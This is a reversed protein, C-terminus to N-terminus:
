SEMYFIKDKTINYKNLLDQIQNNHKQCHFTVYNAEEEFCIDEDEFETEDFYKNLEKLQKKTLYSKHVVYSSSSSNSVFGQRIKM